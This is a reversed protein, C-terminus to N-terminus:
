QLSSYITKEHPNQIFLSTPPALNLEAYNQDNGNTEIKFDNSAIISKYVIYSVLSASIIALSVTSVILFTHAPDNALKCDPKLQIDAIKRYMKFCSNAIQQKNEKFKLECLNNEANIKKMQTLGLGFEPHIAYISNNVLYIESLMKNKTFINGITKILNHQAYFYKLSTLGSLLSEEIRVIKNGDLDLHDLNQLYKFIDIPLKEINNWSFELNTLKALGSFLSEDLDVLENENLNLIKLKDLGHFSNPHIKEIECKTLILRELNTLGSFNEDSISKFVNGKNKADIEIIKEALEHSKLSFDTSTKNKITCKQQVTEDCIKEDGKIISLRFILLLLGAIFDM